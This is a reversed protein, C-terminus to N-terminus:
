EFQRILRPFTGPRFRCRKLASKRLAQIALSAVEKDSDDAAESLLPIARAAKEGLEGLFVPAAWRFKVSKEKLGDELVSLSPEVEGTVKWLANASYVRVTHSESKVFNRLVPISNSAAPGINGFAIAAHLRIQQDEDSLRQLLDPIITKSIQPMDRLLALANM